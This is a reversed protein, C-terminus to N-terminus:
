VRIGQRRDADGPQGIDRNPPLVPGDARSGHTRPDIWRMCSSSVSFLFELTATM